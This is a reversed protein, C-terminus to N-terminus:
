SVLSVLYSIGDWISQLTAMALFFLGSWFFLPRDQQIRTLAIWFAFKKSRQAEDRYETPLKTDLQTRDALSLSRRIERYKLFAKRQGDNLGSGILDTFTIIKNM